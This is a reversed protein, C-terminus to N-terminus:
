QDSQSDVGRARVVDAPNYYELTQLPAAGGDVRGHGGTLLILGNELGTVTPDYRKDFMSNDRPNASYPPAQDRQFDMHVVSDVTESEADKGGIGVLDRSQTLAVLDMGGRSQMMTWPNSWSTRDLRGIQCTATPDGNNTEATTYGGCVAILGRDVRVAGFDYRGTSMPDVDEDFCITRTECPKLLESSALGGLTPDSHRGGIVWISEQEDRMRVAEHQARPQALGESRTEVTNESLDIIEISNLVDNAGGSGIGGVVVVHNDSRRYTATHQARAVGLELPEGQDDTLATVREGPAARLDILEISATPTPEGGDITLGGVVLFRDEGVQTVTHYARPVNLRDAGDPRQEAAQEDYALDTTYGTNPEFLQLDGLVRDLPPLGSPSGAIAHGGGVILANGNSTTVAEHGVRGPYTDGFARSDFETESPGTEVCDGDQFDTCYEAGVPAFQETPVVMAQLSQDDSDPELSFPLTSATGVRGGEGGILDFDLRLAEGFTLEPIEANGSQLDHQSSSVIRGESPQTLKVNIVQAAPYNSLDEVFGGNKSWGFLDIEVTPGEPANGGCGVGGGALLVASVVLM